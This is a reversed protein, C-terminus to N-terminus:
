AILGRAWGAHKWSKGLFDTIAELKSQDIFLERRTGLALFVPAGDVRTGIM